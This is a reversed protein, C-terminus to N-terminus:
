LMCGLTSPTNTLSPILFFNKTILTYLCLSSTSAGDKSVNSALSSPAKVPTIWNFTNRSMGPHNPWIARITEELGFYEMIRHNQSPGSWPLSYGTSSPLLPLTFPAGM